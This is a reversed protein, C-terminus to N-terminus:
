VLLSNDFNAMVIEPELLGNEGYNNVGTLLNNGAGIDPMDNMFLFLSAEYAVNEQETNCLISTDLTDDLSDDPLTGIGDTIQENDHFSQSSSPTTSFPENKIMNDIMSYEYEHMANDFMETSCPSNFNGNVRESLTADNLVEMKNVNTLGARGTLGTSCTSRATSTLQPNSVPFFSFPTTQRGSNVMNIYCGNLRDGQSMLKIPQNQTDKLWDSDMETQFTQQNDNWQKSPKAETEPGTFSQPYYNNFGNMRPQEGSIFADALTNYMSDEPISQLDERIQKVDHFPQSPSTEGFPETKILDNIMFRGDIVNDLMETSCRSNFNSSAEGGMENTLGVGVTLGTNCAVRAPKTLQPNNTPFFPANTIQNGSNTMYRGYFCDHQKTRKDQRYQTEKLRNSKMETQFMLENENWEILPKAKTEQSTFSPRYSKNFVNITNSHLKGEANTAMGEPQGFPDFPVFAETLEDVLYADDADSDSEKENPKEIVKGRTEPNMGVVVGKDEIASLVYNVCLMYTKGTKEDQISTTISQLWIWGGDKNIWRYPSTTSKGKALLESHLQQIQFADTPHYFPYVVRGVIDKAKSDMYRHIRGECFILKLDPTLRSIFAPEIVPLDGLENSWIQEGTGVFFGEANLKGTFKVIGYSTNKALNEKRMFNCQIRLTFQTQENWRGNGELYSTFLETQTPQCVIDGPEGTPECINPDDLSPLHGKLKKALIEWDKRLVYNYMKKGMLEQELCMKEIGASTSSGSGIMQTYRSGDLVKRLGIYSTSLRIISSKDPPNDPISLVMRSLKEINENENKRRTKAAMRSKLKQTESRANIAVGKKYADNNNITGTKGM